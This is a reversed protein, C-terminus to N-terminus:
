VQGLVDGEEHAAGPEVHVAVRDVGDDVGHHVGDLECLGGDLTHQHGLLRARSRGRQSLLSDLEDLLQLSKRERLLSRCEQWAPM